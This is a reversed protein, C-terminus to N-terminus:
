VGKLHGELEDRLARLGAADLAPATLEAMGRQIAEPIMLTGSGLSELVRETLDAIEARLQDPTEEM